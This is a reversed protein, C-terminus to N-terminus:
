YIYMKHHYLYCYPQLSQGLDLYQLYRNTSFINKQLGLYDLTDPIDYIMHFMNQSLEEPNCM